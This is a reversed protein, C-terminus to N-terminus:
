LDVLCSFSEASLLWDCTTLLQDAPPVLALSSPLTLSLVLRAEPSVNEWLPFARAQTTYHKGTLLEHVLSGVVHVDPAGFAEDQGGLRAASPEFGNFVSGDVIHTANQRRARAARSLRVSQKEMADDTGGPVSILPLSRGRRGKRGRGSSLADITSASSSAVGLSVGTGRADAAGAAHLRRGHVKQQPAPPPPFLKEPKEAPDRGPPQRGGSDASREHGNPLTLVQRPRTFSPSPLLEGPPTTAGNETPPAPPPTGAGPSAAFPLDCGNSTLGTSQRSKAACAPSLTDEQTEQTNVSGLSARYDRPQQAHLQQARSKDVWAPSLNDEQTEQTNASGLSGRPQQHAVSQRPKEVWAPYLTDDHAEQTNASGLSARLERSQRAPLPPQGAHGNSGAAAAHEEELRGQPSDSSRADDSNRKSPPPSADSSRLPDECAPWGAFSLGLAGTSSALSSRFAPNGAPCGGAEGLPCWSNPMSVIRVVGEPTVLVDHLTLLGALAHLKTHLVSVARLLQRAMSAVEGESLGTATKFGGASAASNGSQCPRLPLPSPSRHPAEELISALTKGVAADTVLVLERPTQFVDFLNLFAPTACSRSLKSLISVQSLVGRWRRLSYFTAKRYLTVERVAGTVADTALYHKTPRNVDLPQIAPLLPPAPPTRLPFFRKASTDVVLSRSPAAPPHHHHLRHTGSGSDFSANSAFSALLDAAPAASFSESMARLGGGSDVSEAFSPNSRLLSLGSHSHTLSHQRLSAPNRTNGPTLRRYRLDLPTDLAPVPLPVCRTFKKCARLTRDLSSADLFSFAYQLAAEPLKLAYSKCTKCIRHKKGQGSPAVALPWNPTTSFYSVNVTTSSCARCFIGGCKRCHHRRRVVTFPAVCLMCSRVERDNLWQTM